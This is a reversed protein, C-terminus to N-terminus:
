WQSCEKSQEVGEELGLHPPPYPGNLLPPSWVKPLWLPHISGQHRCNRGLPTQCISGPVREPLHLLWPAAAGRGVQHEGLGTGHAGPVACECPRPIAVIRRGLVGAWFLSEHILGVKFAAGEEGEELGTRVGHFRCWAPHSAAVLRAHPWQLLAQPLVGLARGAPLIPCCLALMPVFTHILSPTQSCAPGPSCPPGMWPDRPLCCPAAGPGMGAGGWLAARHVAHLAAQLHPHQTQGHFHLATHRQVSPQLVPHCCASNQSVSHATRLVSIM